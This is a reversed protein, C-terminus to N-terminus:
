ESAHQGPSARRRWEITEKLGEDLMVSATFSLDASALATSGIRNRVAPRDTLEFVPSLPSGSLRLVRQALEIVSTKVGTGVNYFADTVDSKMALVNAMACDSAFVFDYAQSGDGHVMPALGRELREFMSAVVGIYAGRDEQRPGYVNMYRLGVYDFHQPTGRYRHHLARFMQEGALKAAGYFNQNNFPHAETMPVEIADGYVSASSSFVLRRVGTAMAAEIVNFTGRINVDFAARPFDHCHLLWLAAFHFVGDMGRMAERLVDEHLIDGGLSFVSVRPDRLADILNAPKGRSFNDYVVVEAVGERLLADVTHSGIFGAGGIVLFRKGILDM